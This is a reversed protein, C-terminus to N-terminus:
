SQKRRTRRFLVAAPIVAFLAVLGMFNSTSVPGVLSGCSSGDSCQFDTQFQEIGVFQQGPFQTSVLDLILDLPGDQDEACGEVQLDFNGSLSDFTCVIDADPVLLITGSNNADNAKLM